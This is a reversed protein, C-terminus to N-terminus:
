WDYWDEVFAREQDSGEYFVDEIDEHQDDAILSDVLSIGEDWDM